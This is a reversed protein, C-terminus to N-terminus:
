WFRLELTLVLIFMSARNTTLTPSASDCTLVGHRRCDDLVGADVSSVEVQANAFDVNKKSTTKRAEVLQVDIITYPLIISPYSGYAVEVAVRNPLVLSPSACFGNSFILCNFVTVCIIEVSVFAKM